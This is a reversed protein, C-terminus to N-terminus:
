KSPNLDPCPGDRVTLSEVIGMPLPSSWRQPNEKSYKDIMALAQDVSINKEVCKALNDYKKSRDGAFYGNVFGIYLFSKSDHTPLSKWADFFFFIKHDEPVDNQASAVSPFCCLAIIASIFARRPFALM